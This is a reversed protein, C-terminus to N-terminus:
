SPAMRWGDFGSAAAGLIEWGDGAPAERFAGVVLDACCGQTGNRRKACCGAPERKAISGPRAIWNSRGVMIM